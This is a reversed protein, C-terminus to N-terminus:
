FSPHLCKQGRITFVAMLVAFFATLLFSSKIGAVSAVVGALIPGVAQGVGVTSEYSGVAAGLKDEPYHRSILNITLPFVIGSSGGIVLIATLFVIFTPYVGVVVIGVAMLLSAFLLAKKEGLMVYRESTVYAFIRGLGFSGFLFGILTTNVGISNAYGPFITTMVSYVIGYCGIMLYWPLLKRFTRMIGSFNPAVIDRKPYSPVVWIITQIFAFGLIVSSFVFLRLFGFEQIIMGGVIPGVLLGITSAASYWAMEKVRRDIPALDSVVVEVTPYYFGLALGGVLRLMVVDAVSHSFILALTALANIALAFTFLWARNVRDALNGVFMPTLASTVAVATGILGLDFFTAGLSQAFVPIFYMYMGLGLNAVLVAIYLRFLKADHLM